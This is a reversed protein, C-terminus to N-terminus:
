KIVLVEIDGTKRVIEVSVNFRHRRLVFDIEGEKIKLKALHVEKLFDPLVPHRFVVRNPQELTLGLCAQLLMFVTGSAWAQPMCAVPYLTPGDGARRHFGCFLEPLRYQDFYKSADFIGTFVKLLADMLGYKAFGLAILANDHPWISGNHYSMPNYKAESSAVTRIGWGSFFEDSILTETLRYVREESAIGTFICHGANSTRVRCPQKKGDLAIAYFGLDDVWFTTEFRDRLIEAAQKLHRSLEREGLLDALMAAETKAAYVYGQVECLAIPGEALRGDSHFVSDKSDKWGQNILGRESRRGYEIFGDGDIDGYEDIWQLARKLHPWITKIFELDGSRRYYAGALYIFLPTSDVSGYYKGFPIEGLAAMEGFRVEHIIKGPEADSEPNLTEAQTASLYSLVDRAIQPEFWLCELATIIGDRGFAANFWPVGAYPYSGHRTDTLMMHIDSLSTSFWANFQENTTCIQCASDRMTKYKEDALVLAHKWYVDERRDFQMTIRFAERCKPILKFEFIAAENDLSVPPVSFVLRTTRKQNDLGQYGLTIDQKGIEPPLYEGRRERKIGRVEFVDEFDAEFFLHLRIVVPDIGFNILYISEFCNGEWIFKSRHCHITDRPIFTGNGDILIDPNTLDASLINSERKMGSSLFLPRKGELRLEWKSLHRTGQHYIGQEEMGLKLIDGMRAFVGFTENHKLTLTKLDVRGSTALIYYEDKVHSTTDMM